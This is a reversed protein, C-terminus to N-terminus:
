VHPEGRSKSIFSPNRELLFAVDEEFLVTESELRNAIRRLVMQNKKLIGRVIDRREQLIANLQPRLRVFESRLDSVLPVALGYEKDLGSHLINMAYETACRLDSASGASPHQYILEEAVLGGLSVDIRAKLDSANLCTRLEPQLEVFGLNDQRGDISVQTFHQKRIAAIVAHGAEHVATIRRDRGTQAPRQTEKGFLLDNRAVLFDTRTPSGDGVIELMDTIVRTIDAPSWNQTAAIVFKMFDQPLHQNRKVCLKEILVQRDKARILKGVQIHTGFRGPRLLASDLADKRNTGALMLVKKQCFGDMEQLFANLVQISWVNGSDRSGIADIEDIFVLANLRRASEFLEKVHKIGESPTAGILDSAVVSLFPVGLDRATAKAISTKGCGPPGYLLISDVMTRDFSKMRDLKQRILKRPIDVGVLDAFSTTPPTVVFFKGDHITPSVRYKLDTVQITIGTESVTTRVDYILRKALSLRKKTRNAITVPDTIAPDDDLRALPDTLFRVPLRDEPKITSNIIAENTANFVLEDAMASLGHASGIEPLTDLLLTALRETDLEVTKAFSNVLQEKSREIERQLISLTDDATFKPLAIIKDAKSLIALLVTKKEDRTKDKMSEAVCEILRDKPIESKYDRVLEAFKETEIFESGATITILIVNRAFSIDKDAYDDHMTGSALMRDIYCLAEQHGKELDNIVIISNPYTSAATCIEGSKGGDKWSPDRGKLDLALQPAIYHSMEIPNASSNGTVEATTTRVKDALTTKGTGPAGIFVSVSPRGGRDEVTSNWHGAIVSTVQRIQSERGVLEKGLRARISRIAGASQAYHQKLDKRELYHCHERAAKLLRDKYGQLSYDICNLALLEAAEGVPHRFLAIAALYFDIKCNYDSLEEMLSGLEGGFESLIRNADSSFSLENELTNDESTTTTLLPKPFVLSKGFLTRPLWRRAMAGVAMLLHRICIMGRADHDARAIRGSLCIFERYDEAYKEPTLQWTYHGNRM